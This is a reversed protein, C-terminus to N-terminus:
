IARTMFVSFPDDTYGDFPGCRVFGASEYLRLAPIFPPSSGTELWLSDMGRARAERILHDLLARGIGRGLFVDAVRMSKLEGRRADLRKLAGCGVIEEGLWVSWFTVEPERLKDIELAHVSGPPSNAHMGALHRAILARTPEGSLDDLRFDLPLSM